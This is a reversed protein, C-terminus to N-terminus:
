DAYGCNIWWRPAHGILKPVFDMKEQTPRLAFFDEQDSCVASVDVIDIPIIM